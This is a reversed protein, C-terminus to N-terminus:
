CGRGWRRWCVGRSSRRFLAVALDADIELAGAVVAEGLVLGVLGLLVAGFALFHLESEMGNGDGVGSRGAGVGGTEEVTKEVLDAAVAVWM